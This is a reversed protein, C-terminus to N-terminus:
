GLRGGIRGYGAVRPPTAHPSETSGPVIRWRVQRRYQEWLPGYKEACRKDDDRERFGLLLVYYLPYLWPGILLPWGLVLAIGCAMLIEGLYNVHRSVGWFGGALLHHEGDSIAHPSMGGLFAREPYFYPYWSLGGWVLKFGVHEARGGFMQPNFRRGLYLDGLM